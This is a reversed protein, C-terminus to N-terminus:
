FHIALYHLTCHAIKELRWKHQPSANAVNLCAHTEYISFPLFFSFSRERGSPVRHACKAGRSKRTDLRLPSHAVDDNSIYRSLRTIPSSSPLSARERVCVHCCAARRNLIYQIYKSRLVRGCKREAWVRRREDVIPQARTGQGLWGHRESSLGRARVRDSVMCRIPRHVASM